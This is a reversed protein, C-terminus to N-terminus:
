SGAGALLLTAAVVGAAAMVAYAGRRVDTWRPVHKAFTWVVAMMFTVALLQGIEIGINFAITKGVLGADPIGLDQLRTALGLGDILGFAFIIMGPWFFDAPRGRLGMAAVFVVSLAIVADVATPSM